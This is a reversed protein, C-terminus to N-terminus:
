LCDNNLNPYEDCEKKVLKMKTQVKGKLIEFKFMSLTKSLPLKIFKLITYLWPCSWLALLTAARQFLPFTPSCGGRTLPPRSATPESSAWTLPHSSGQAPFPTVLSLWPGRPFHHCFASFLQGPSAKEVKFEPAPM